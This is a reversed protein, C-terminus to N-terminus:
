SVRPPWSPNWLPAWGAHQLLLVAGAAAFSLAFRWATWERSRGEELPGRLEIAANILSVAM